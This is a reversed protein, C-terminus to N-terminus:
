KILVLHRPNTCPMTTKLLEGFSKLMSNHYCVWQDEDLTM